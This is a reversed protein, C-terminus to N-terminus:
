SRAEFTAAIVQYHAPRMQSALFRQWILRYLAVTDPLLPELEGPLYSPDTPRIAEHAEEPMDPAPEDAQRPLRLRALRIGGSESLAKEGYLDVVVARAVQVAEPDAETSDTRPYTIRGQEFLTQAEAMTKRGGWGWQMAVNELMDLTTYPLPPAEEIVQVQKDTVVLAQGTLAQAAQQAQIASKFELFTTMTQDM